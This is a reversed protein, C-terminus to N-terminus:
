PCARARVLLRASKVATGVGHESLQAKCSPHFDTNQEEDHFVGTLIQAAASIAVWIGSSIWVHASLEQEDHRPACQPKGSCFTILNLTVAMKVQLNRRACTVCVHQQQGEAPAPSVGRHNLPLIERCSLGSM